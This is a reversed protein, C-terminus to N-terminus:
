WAGHAPRPKADCGRARGAGARHAPQGSPAPPSGGGTKRARRALCRPAPARWAAAGLREAGIIGRLRILRSARAAASRAWPWARADVKMQHARGRLHLGVVVLRLSCRITRCPDAPSPGDPGAASWWSWRGSATESRARWKLNACCPLDPAHTDSSSGYVARMTSSMAIMRLMCVSAILWSGAM